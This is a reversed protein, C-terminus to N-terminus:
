SPSCPRGDEAIAIAVDAILDSSTVNRPRNTCRLDKTEKGGKVAQIFRYIQSRSLTNVGYCEDTTTKILKFEKGGQAPTFDWVNAM